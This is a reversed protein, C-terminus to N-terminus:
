ALEDVVEAECDTVEGGSWYADRNKNLLTAAFDIAEDESDAEVPVTYSAREYFHVNFKAM